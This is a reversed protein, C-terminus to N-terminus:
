FLLVIELEFACLSCIDEIFKENVNEVKEFGLFPPVHLSCPALVVGWNQKFFSGIFERLIEM